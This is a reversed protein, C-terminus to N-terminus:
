SKEDQIGFSNVAMALLCYGGVTFVLDMCQVDSFHRGLATWVSDSITCHDILDDVASV